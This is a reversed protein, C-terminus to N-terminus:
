VKVRLPERDARNGREKRFSRRPLVVAIILTRQFGRDLPEPFTFGAAHDDSRVTSAGANDRLECLGRLTPAAQRRAPTFPCSQIAPHRAVSRNSCLRMGASRKGRRNEADVSKRLADMINIVNNPTAKPESAKAKTPRKTKKRKAEIIELLNDQVPDAM